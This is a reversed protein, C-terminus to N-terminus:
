NDDIYLANRPRLNLVVRKWKVYGFMLFNSSGRWRYVWLGRRGPFYGILTHRSIGYVHITRSQFNNVHLLTNTAHANVIMDLSSEQQSCIATCYSHIGAHRSGSCDFCTDCLKDLHTQHWFRWNCEIHSQNRQYEIHILRYFAFSSGILIDHETFADTMSPHTMLKPVYHHQKINGM